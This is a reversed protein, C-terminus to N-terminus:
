NERGFSSVHLCRFPVAHTLPHLSLCLFVSLFSAANALTSSCHTAPLTVVSFLRPFPLIPPHLQHRRKFRMFVSSFKGGRSEDRKGREREREQRMRCDQM